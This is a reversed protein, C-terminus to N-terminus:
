RGGIGREVGVCALGRVLAGAAEAASGPAGAPFRDLDRRHRGRSAAADAGGNAGRGRGVEAVDADGGEIAARHIEELLLQLRQAGAAGGRDHQIEAVVAAAVERRAHLCAAWRGRPILARGPHKGEWLGRGCSATM